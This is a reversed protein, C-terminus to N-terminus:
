AKLNRLNGLFNGLNEPWTWEMDLMMDEKPDWIINTEEIKFGLSEVLKNAVATTQSPETFIQINEGDTQVDIVGAEIVRDFLHAPEPYPTMRALIRGKQEFIHKTPTVTGGFDKIALRMETLTRPKSDTRCEIIIAVSHPMMAEITVNELPAGSQSVGQGRAIANEISAKPFGIKKAKTVLDALRPNM